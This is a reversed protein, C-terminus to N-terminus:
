ASRTRVGAQLLRVIHQVQREFREADDPGVMLQTFQQRAFPYFCLANVSVIFLNPDVDARYKGAAVAAQHVRRIGDFQTALTEPLVRALTEGGACEEWALLRVYAPHDRLFTCYRRVIGELVLDADTSEALTETFLPAAAQFNIRLVAEYLGAKSRFYHYIMRKNIGATRAIVNVSAAFPGRKLFEAQAAALLRAQTADRDRKRVPQAPAKRAPRKAGRARARPREV